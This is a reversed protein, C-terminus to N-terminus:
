ESSYFEILEILSEFYREPFLCFKNSEHFRTRYHKAHVGKKDTYCKISVSYVDKNQESRRVMFTGVINDDSLLLTEAERRLM